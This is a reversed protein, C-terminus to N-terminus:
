IKIGFVLPSRFLGVLSSTSKSRLICWVVKGGHKKIVINKELKSKLQEVNIPTSFGGAFLDSFCEAVLFPESIESNLYIKQM